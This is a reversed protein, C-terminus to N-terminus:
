LSKKKGKLKAEQAKKKKAADKALERSESIKSLCASLMNVVEIHQLVESNNLVLSYSAINGSLFTIGWSSIKKKANQGLSDELINVVVVDAATSQLLYCQEDTIEINLYARLELFRRGRTIM